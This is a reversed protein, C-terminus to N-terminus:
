AVVEAIVTQRKVPVVGSRGEVSVRADEDRGGAGLSEDPRMIRKIM